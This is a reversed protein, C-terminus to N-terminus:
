LADYGTPIALNSIYSVSAPNDIFFQGFWICDTAGCRAIHPATMEAASKVNGHLESQTM